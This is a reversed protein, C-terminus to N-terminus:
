LSKSAIKLWAITHYCDRYIDEWYRNVEGDKFIHTNMRSIQTRYDNDKKQLIIVDELDKEPLQKKCDVFQGCAFKIVRTEHRNSNYGAEWVDKILENSMDYNYCNEQKWEEWDKEINM